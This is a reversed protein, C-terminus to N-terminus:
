ANAAKFCQPIAVNPAFKHPTLTDSCCCTGRARKSSSSAEMVGLLRNVLHFHGLHNSAFQTEHGNAALSNYSFPSLMQGANCFLLHLPLKLRMFSAVFQLCILSLRCLETRTAISVEDVSAISELDCKLFVVRSGTMQTLRRAAEEGAPARRCALIVTAGANSLMRAIAFRPSPISLPPPQTVRALLYNAGNQLYISQGSVLIQM